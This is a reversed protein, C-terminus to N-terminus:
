GCSMITATCGSAPREPSGRMVWGEIGRRSSSPFGTFTGDVMVRSSYPPVCALSVPVVLTLVTSPMAVNEPSVRVPVAPM